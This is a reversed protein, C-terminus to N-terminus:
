FVLQLGRAGVTKSLQPSLFFLAAGIGMTGLGVLFLATSASASSDASKRLAIGADDCKNTADCHGDSNSANKKSIADTGLALGITFLVFGAGAAGVGAIRWPTFFSSGTAQPKSQEVELSPVEVTVLGAQAPVDVTHEWTRDNTKARVVHRGPDLEHPETDSTDGDIEIAPNGTVHVRLSPMKATLAEARDHANKARGDHKAEALSEGERYLARAAIWHGRREECDALYLTVGIGSEIKRSESLRDCAEAIRGADLLKLGEDFLADARKTDGQALALEPLLVLAVALAACKM